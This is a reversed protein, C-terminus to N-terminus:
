EEERKITQYENVALWVLWGCLLPLLCLIIQWSEFREASCLTGIVYLASVACLCAYLCVQLLLMIKRM